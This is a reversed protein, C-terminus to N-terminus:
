ETGGVSSNPKSLCNAGGSIGPANEIYQRCDCIQPNV